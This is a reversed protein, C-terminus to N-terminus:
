EEEFHVGSTAGRHGSDTTRVDGYKRDLEDEEITVYLAALYAKVGQKGNVDWISPNISLDVHTIDAWDLIAIEEEGLPTKGRSTIMYVKPPRIKYSVTVQVYPRQVEDPDDGDRPKRRKINYGDRGMADAVDEPLFVVFTRNGARNFQDEKGAFNLYGIEVDELIANPLRETKAM